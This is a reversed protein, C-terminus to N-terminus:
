HWPRPYHLWVEFGGYTNITHAYNPVLIVEGKGNVGTTCRLSLVAGFICLDRERKTTRTTATQSIEQLSSVSQLTLTLIKM